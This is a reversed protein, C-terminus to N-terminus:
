LQKRYFGYTTSGVKSAFSVFSFLERETGTPTGSTDYFITRIASVQNGSTLVLGSHFMRLYGSDAVINGSIGTPLSSGTFSTNTLTQRKLTDRADQIHGSYHQVILSSM